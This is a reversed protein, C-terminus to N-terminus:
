RNRTYWQMQWVHVDDPPTTDRELRLVRLSYRERQSHRRSTVRRASTVLYRAGATTTIWDGVAVAQGLPVDFYLGCPEGVRWTM